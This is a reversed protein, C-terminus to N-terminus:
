VLNKDQWFRNMNLLLLYKFYFRKTENKYASALGFGGVVVALM